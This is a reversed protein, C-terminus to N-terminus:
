CLNQASSDAHVHHASPGAEISKIIRNSMILHSEIFIRAILNISLCEMCAISVDMNNCKDCDSHSHTM